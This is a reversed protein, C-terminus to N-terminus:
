IIKQSVKTLAQAVILNPGWSVWASSTVVFGPDLQLWHSAVPVWIRLTVAAFTLSYSRIMWNRHEKIKKQGIYEAIRKPRLTTEQVDGADKVATAAVASVKRRPASRELAM